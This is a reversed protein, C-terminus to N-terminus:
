CEKGVRREESRFFDRLDLNLVFRHGANPQANTLISRGPVFGHSAPHSSSGFAAQLCALLLRQVRLLGHDPAKITRVEGRTRKPIQFTRYRTEKKHYTYYNLLKASVPKAKHHPHEALDLQLAANLAAALQPADTVCRFLAALDVEVVPEPVPSAAEPPVPSPLSPVSM